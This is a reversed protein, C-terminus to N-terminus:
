NRILIIPLILFHSCYNAKFCELLKTKESLTHPRKETKTQHQKHFLTSYCQNFLNKRSISCRQTIVKRHEGPIEPPIRLHVHPPATIHYCASSIRLYPRTHAPPHTPPHREPPSNEQFSCLDGHFVPQSSDAGDQCHLGEAQELLSADTGSSGTSNVVALLFFWLWPGAQCKQLRWMEIQFFLEKTQQQLRTKLWKKQTKLKKVSIQFSTVSSCIHKISVVVNSFTWYMGCMAEEFDCVTM